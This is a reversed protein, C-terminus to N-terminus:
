SGRELNKIVLSSLYLGVQEKKKNEALQKLEETTMSKTSQRNRNRIARSEKLSLKTTTNRYEEDTTYTEGYGREGHFIYDECDLVGEM